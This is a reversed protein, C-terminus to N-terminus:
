PKMYSTLKTKFQNNSHSILNLQLRLPTNSKPLMEQYKELIEIITAESEEPKALDVGHAKLIDLFYGHCSSNLKVLEDM